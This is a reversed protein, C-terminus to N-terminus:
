PQRFCTKPHQLHHCTLTLFLIFSGIVQADYFDAPRSLEITRLLPGGHVMNEM